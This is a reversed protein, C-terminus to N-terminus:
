VPGVLLGANVSFVCRMVSQGMSYGAQHLSKRFASLYLTILNLHFITPSYWFGVYCGWIFFSQVNGSAHTVGM